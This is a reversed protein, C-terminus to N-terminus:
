VDCEGCFALTEDTVGSFILQSGVGLVCDEISFSEDTTFPGLGGHLMVDLVEGEFNNVPVGLRMDLNLCRGSLFLNESSLLDGGHDQDLHLLRCLCVQSLLDCVSHDSDGSYTILKIKEM